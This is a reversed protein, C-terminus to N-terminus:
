FKKKVTILKFPRSVHALVNNEAENIESETSIEEQSEELGSETNGNICYSAAGKATQDDSEHRIIKFKRSNTLVRDLGPDTDSESNNASSNIDECLPQFPEILSNTCSNINETEINHDKDVIREANLANSPTIENTEADLTKESEDAIDKDDSSSDLPCAIKDPLTQATIKEETLKVADGDSDM